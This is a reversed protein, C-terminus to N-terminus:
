REAEGLSLEQHPALGLAQPRGSLSVGGLKTTLRDMVAALQPGLPPAVSQKIIGGALAMASGIALGKLQQMEPAFRETLEGFLSRDRVRPKVAPAPTPSAVTGAGHFNLLRGNKSNPSLREAASRIVARTVPLRRPALRALVYGAAVSGALMSWPHREVQRGLDLAHKVSDVTDHLSGKVAQVTDAVSQRVTGVTDVVASRAHGVEEKVRQKLKELKETLDARTQELQRRIEEPRQASLDPEQHM